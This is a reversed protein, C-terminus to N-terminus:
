KMMASKLGSVIRRQFSRQDLGYRSGFGGGSAGGGVFAERAFCALSAKTM